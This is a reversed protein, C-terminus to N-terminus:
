LKSDRNERLFKKSKKKRRDEPVEGLEKELLDRGIEMCVGHIDKELDYLNDCADLEQMKEWKSLFIAIYEEKTM